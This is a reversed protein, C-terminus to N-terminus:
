IAEVVKPASPPRGRRKPAEDDEERRARMAAMERRLEALEDRLAAAEERAAKAEAEAKVLPAADTQADLFKRAKDRLARANETIRLGVDPLAALMEISGIGGARLGAIDAVNLNLLALPTGNEAEKQNAMWKRATEGAWRWVDPEQVVFEDRGPLFRVLERDLTDRTGPYHQRIVLVRAYHMKGNDLVHSPDEVAEYRFSVFRHTPRERGTEDLMRGGDELAIIVSEDEM